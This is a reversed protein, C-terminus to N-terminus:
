SFKACWIDHKPSFNGFLVPNSPYMYRGPNATPKEEANEQKKERAMAHIYHLGEEIQNMIEKHDNQLGTETLVM